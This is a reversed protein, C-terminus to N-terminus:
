EGKAEREAKLRAQEARRKEDAEIKKKKKEEAVKKKEAQEKAHLEYSGAVSYADYPEGDRSGTPVSFKIVVYKENNDSDVCPIALENNATILVEYDTYTKFLDKVWDRFNTRLENNLETNSKAKEM